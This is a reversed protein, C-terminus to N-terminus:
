NRQSEVVDETPIDQHEEVSPLMRPDPVTKKGEPLNHTSHNIHSLIHQLQHESTEELESRIAAMKANMEALVEQKAAKAHDADVKADMKDMRALLDKQNAEANANMQELIQQMMKEMNDM